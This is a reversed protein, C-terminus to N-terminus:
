ANKIKEMKLKQCIYEYLELDILNNNKFKQLDNETLMNKITNSTYEIKDYIVFSKNSVINNFNEFININYNLLFWKKIKYMFEKHNETIGIIKFEDVFTKALDFTIENNELGWSNNIKKYWSNSENNIKIITPETCVFKSQINRHNVYYDDEFLYYRLKDVFNPIKKYEPNAYLTKDYIFLFTSIARDIPNRFLCAVDLDKIEKIPYRAFHGKIYNYENINNKHPPSTPPYIKINNEILSKEIQDNVSTGGTKPIHLFYLQKNNKM